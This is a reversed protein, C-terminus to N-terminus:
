TTTKEYYKLGDKLHKRLAGKVKDKQFQLSNLVAKEFEHYERKIGDIIGIFETTTISKCPEEKCAILTMDYFTTIIKWDAKVFEKNCIDCKM